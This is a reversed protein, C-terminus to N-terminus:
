ASASKMASQVGPGCSLALADSLATLVTKHSPEHPDKSALAVTTIMEGDLTYVDYTALSYNRVVYYLIFFLAIPTLLTISLDSEWTM